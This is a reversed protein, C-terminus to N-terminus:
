HPIRFARRTQRNSQHGSECRCQRRYNIRLEFFEDFQKAKGDILNVSPLIKVGKTQVDRIADRYNPHLKLLDRDTDPRLLTLDLKTVAASLNVTWGSAERSDIREPDFKPVTAADFRDDILDDHHSVTPERYETREIVTTRDGFCGVQMVVIGVAFLRCFRLQRHIWCM